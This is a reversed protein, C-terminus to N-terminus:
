SSHDAVIRWGGDERRFVLTTMGTQGEGLRWRATLLAHDDGLLRFDEFVFSLAPIAERKAAPGFIAPYGAIYRARIAAKGRVLGKAGTFSTAPDDSYVALFRDLDGANWGAASDRMAAEIAVRPEAIPTAAVLVPVAWLGIM